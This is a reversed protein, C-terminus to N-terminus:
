PNQPPRSEGGFVVGGGRERLPPAGRPGAGRPPKEPAGGGGGGGRTLAPISTPWLVNRSIAIPRSSRAGVAASSSWIHASSSSPSRAPASPRDVPRKVGGPLKASGASIM